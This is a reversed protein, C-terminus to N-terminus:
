TSAIPTVAPTATMARASTGVIHLRPYLGRGCNPWGASSGVALSAPGQPGIGIHCHADVMGPLIYGGDCVTTAGPVPEAHIIGDAVWLQGPEGAPLVIGRLHM